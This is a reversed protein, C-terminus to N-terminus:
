LEDKGGDNHKRSQRKDHAAYCDHKLDPAIAEWIRGAELVYTLQSGLLFIEKHDPPCFQARDFLLDLLAVTQKGLNSDECLLQGRYLSLVCGQLIRTAFNLLDLGLCRFCSSFQRIYRLLEICLPFLKLLKRFFATGLPEIQQFPLQGLDCRFV